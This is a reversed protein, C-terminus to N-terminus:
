QFCHCTGSLVGAPRRTSTVCGSSISHIQVQLRSKLRSPRQLKLMLKAAVVWSEGKMHERLSHPLGELLCSASDAKSALHLPVIFVLLWFYGCSYKFCDESVGWSTILTNFLAGFDTGPLGIHIYEAPGNVDPGDITLEGEDLRPDLVVSDSVWFETSWSISPRLPPSPHLIKTRTLLKRVSKGIARKTHGMLVISAGSQKEDQSIGIECESWDLTKLHASEHVTVGLPGVSIFINDADPANCPQGYPLLSSRMLMNMRAGCLKKQDWKWM